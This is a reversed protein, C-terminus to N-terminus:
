KGVLIKNSNGILQSEIKRSMRGAQRGVNEVLYAQMEGLAIFREKSADVEGEMGKM